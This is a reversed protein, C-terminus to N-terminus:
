LSDGPDDISKSNYKQCLIVPSAFPFEIPIIIDDALMKTTHHDIINQKVKDYHYPKSVHAVSGINIEHWAILTLGSNDLFVESFEELFKKFEGKEVEGLGCDELDFLASTSNEKCTNEENNVVM